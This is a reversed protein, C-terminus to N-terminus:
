LLLISNYEDKNTVTHDNEQKLTYTSGRIFGFDMHFHQGPLVNPIYINDILDDESTHGQPTLPSKYKKSRTRKHKHKIHTPPGRALKSPKGQMCAVCRYFSNGNLPETFGNVHKHLMKMCRCGLYIM